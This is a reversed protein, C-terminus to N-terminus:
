NGADMHNWPGQHGAKNKGGHTRPVCTTLVCMALLVSECM